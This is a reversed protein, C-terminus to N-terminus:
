NCYEHEVLLSLLEARFTEHTWCPVVGSRNLREWLAQALTLVDAEELPHSLVIDAWRKQPAVYRDHMPFVNETLARTVAEATYGREATDRALRRSQRLEAPIDLYLSLDFLERLEPEHLLWLGEVFVVPRPLCIQRQSVRTHTAFDYKPLYTPVGARCDQLVRRANEWDIATPVDFNLQARRALPLHSRDRYFDDLSVRCAKDGLALCLRDVLWSKGAGSGGVVAFVLSSNTNNM